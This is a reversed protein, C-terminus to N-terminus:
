HNLCLTKIKNITIEKKKQALDTLEETTQNTYPHRDGYMRDGYKLIWGWQNDHLYIELDESIKTKSHM